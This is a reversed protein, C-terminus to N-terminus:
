LRKDQLAPFSPPHPISHFLSLHLLPYKIYAISCPFSIQIVRYPNKGLVRYICERLLLDNRKARFWSSVLPLRPQRPHIDPSRDILHIRFAWLISDHRRIDPFCTVLYSENSKYPSLSLARSNTNITLEKRKILTLSNIVFFYLVILYIFFNKFSLICLSLSCFCRYFSIQEALTNTIYYFCSFVITIIIM